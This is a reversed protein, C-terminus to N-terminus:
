SDGAAGAVLPELLATASAVADDMTLTAAEDMAQDLRDAGLRGALTPTMEAILAGDSPNIVVGARRCAEAAAGLMTAAGGPSEDLVLQAVLVLEMALLENHGLLRTEGLARVLYRAADRRDDTLASVGGIMYLTYARSTTQGKPELLELAEFLRSRAAEYQQKETLALALQTLTHGLRRDQGGAERQIEAAREFAVIADDLQGTREMSGGLWAYALGLTARDGAEELAPLARRYLAVAREEDHEEGAVKGAELTIRAALLPSASTSRELAAAVVRGREARDGRTLFWFRLALVIRLQREPDDCAAAWVLAARIDPLDAAAADFLDPTLGTDVDRAAYDEVVSLFHDLHRERARPAEEEAVLRELAYERVTELMGFRPDGAADPQHVVLGADLIDELADIAAGEGIAEIADLTAAGAFVGLVRLLRRGADDLLDYSWDITARLSRQRPPLDHAERALLALREGLRKATGEPGLVRVRAAALELAFPLGDLARCIRAISAANAEGLEFDPITARVREVYLRVSAVTEIEGVGTAGPEPIELPPVRYEQEAALRLPVRSTALITLEPAAAVLDGVLPHAAPLHELNDLVLLPPAERVAAAIAAVTADEVGLGAAIAPLVLEADSMPALDVLAARGLQDAAALALRTKGTGGTGTLTVLRVDPRRLLGTVAALARERGILATAPSLRETTSTVPPRLQTDQRLIAQELERLEAGPEIGLEDILAARADRYAALADAQRSSRYLALMLLWRLRERFPHEAVAAELAGVLEAHRGLEIEAEFRREIAILRLEELREAEGQAFPEYVLDALASGRWLDLADGLTAAAAAHEGSALLGAGDAALQEFRVSDLEDDALQLVYGPARTVIRDADLAKRLSHVHVQLAGAATPPPHEGWVADILMDQSVVQNRRLALQALVARVRPGGVGVAAGDEDLVELPGLILLKM